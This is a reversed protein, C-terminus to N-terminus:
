MRALEAVVVDVRGHCLFTRTNEAAANKRYDNKDTLQTAKSNIEIQFDPQKVKKRKHCTGHADEAGDAGFGNRM